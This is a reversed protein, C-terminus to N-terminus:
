ATYRAKQRVRNRSLGMRQAYLMRDAVTRRMAKKYTPDSTANGWHPHFHEVIANKAM